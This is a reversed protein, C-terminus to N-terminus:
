QSLGQIEGLDRRWHCKGRNKHSYFVWNRFGEYKPTEHPYGTSQGSFDVVRKCPNNLLKNGILDSALLAM